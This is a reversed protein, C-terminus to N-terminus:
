SIRANWRKLLSNVFAGGFLKSSFMNSFYSSRIMLIEKHAPIHKGQVNFIIDPEKNEELMKEVEKIAELDRNANEFGFARKEIIEKVFNNVPKM